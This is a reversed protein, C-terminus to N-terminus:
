SAAQAAEQAEKIFNSVQNSVAVLQSNALHAYRTTMKQDSHGALKSAEYLSGGLQVIYSIHTHRLDHIRFPNGQTM